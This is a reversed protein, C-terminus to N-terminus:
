RRESLFEKVIEGHDFAMPPLDSTSFWKVSEADDGAALRGGTPRMLYIATVFHGRPDREPDSRVGLLRVVECTLGTEEKVERKVCEELREGYEVFGGPLAYSGKFPGKGRRILLINRDKTVIGDATLSPKRWDNALQSELSEAKSEYETLIKEGLETLESVGGERGGRSSTVVDGGANESIRQLVDWAHRYSMGMEKAAKSMSGLDKIKRLLTARGDSILFRGDKVLWLKLQLDYM